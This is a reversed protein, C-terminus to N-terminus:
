LLKPQLELPIEGVEDLFLTGGNAVEFRGIKQAIAGTFAGKEHGFLESELLGSPIAACNIKVFTRERRGSRDHIARAILEKGTGTEGLILVTSDTPAVVEAQQLIRALTRSEGIIEEFPHETRIESELYLREEALKDKLEAIQQFALANAVAVAVQRAVEEILGVAAPTFADPRLSGVNLTGLVRDRVMLPVCCLSRIGARCLPHDADLFRARLDDDAFVSTQRATFAQGFPSNSIPILKGERCDHPGSKFAGARIVLH